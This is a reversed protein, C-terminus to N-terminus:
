PPNRQRKTKHACRRNRDNETQKEKGSTQPRSTKGPKPTSSQPAPIQIRETQQKTQENSQENGIVQPTQDQPTPDQPSPQNQNQVIHTKPTRTRRQELLGKTAGNIEGM